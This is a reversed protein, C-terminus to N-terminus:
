YYPCHTVFQEAASDMHQLVNRSYGPELPILAVGHKRAYAAVDAYRFVRDDKAAYVFHEGKWGQERALSVESKRFSSFSGYCLAAQLYALTADPPAQKAIYAATKRDVLNNLFLGNVAFGPARYGRFQVIAGFTVVNLIMMFLAHLTGVFGGYVLFSRHFFAGWVFPPRPLEHLDFQVHPYKQFLLNLCQSAYLAGLSHGVLTVKKLVGNNEDIWGQVQAFILALNTSLNQLSLFRRPQNHKVRHATVCYSREVADRVYRKSEVYRQLLEADQGFGPFYIAIHSVPNPRDDSFRFDYSSKLDRYIQM